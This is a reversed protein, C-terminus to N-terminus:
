AASGSKYNVFDYADHNDSFSAVFSLSGNEGLRYVTPRDSDEGHIQLGQMKQSWFGCPKLEPCHKRYVCMPVMFEALIPDIKEMEKKVAQWAQRTELSAQGCLRRRSMFMVEQANIDMTHTIPTGQPMDDRSMQRDPNRDDRQSQVFHEVGFKHRVLHVSVWSKLGEIKIEYRVRRIVSHECELLKRKWEDSPENGLGAKGMTARAADLALSWPTLQTVTVKM